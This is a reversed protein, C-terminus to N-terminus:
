TADNHHEEYRFIGKTPVSKDKMFRAFDPGGFSVSFSTKRTKKFADRYNMVGWIYFRKIGKEVAMIEEESIIDKKFSRWSIEASPFVTDKQDFQRDTITLDQPPKEMIAVSYNFIINTGPTQGHNKIDFSVGIKDSVNQWNLIIKPTISIYARLQRRVAARATVVQWAGAGVLLITCVALIGTFVAVPDYFINGWEKPTQKCNCDEYKTEEQLNYSPALYHFYFASIEADNNQAQSIEKNEKIQRENYSIAIKKTQKQLPQLQAFAGFGVFLGLIIMLAIKANLM